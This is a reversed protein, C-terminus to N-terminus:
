PLTALDEPALRPVFHACGYDRHTVLRELGTANQLQALVVPHKGASFQVCEGWVGQESQWHRCDLCSAGAPMM